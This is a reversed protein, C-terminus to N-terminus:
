RSPSEPRVGTQGWDSGARVTARGHAAVVRLIQGTRLARTDCVVVPCRVGYLSEGVLAGVTLIPDATGLVIAVPATGRRLMEALVASSSSSGRGAPMVLVTGRVCVGLDPHTRDIVDGNEIEVGGWFSLPGALVLAEGEAEGSTYARGDVIM